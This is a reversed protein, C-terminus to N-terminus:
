TRILLTKKKESSYKRGSLLIAALLLCAETRVAMAKLSVSTRLIIQDTTAIM